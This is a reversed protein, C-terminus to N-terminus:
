RQTSLPVPCWAPCRASVAVRAHPVCSRGFTWVESTGDDGSGCTAAVEQGDPSVALDGIPSPVTLWSLGTRSETDYTLIGGDPRSVVASHRFASWLVSSWPDFALGLHEVTDHPTGAHSGTIRTQGSGALDTITIGGDPWALAVRDGRPSIAFARPLAAPGGRGEWLRYRVPVAGPKLATCWLDLQWREAGAREARGASAPEGVLVAAFEADPTVALRGRVEAPPQPLTALRVSEGARWLMVDSDRRFVLAAASPAWAPETANPIAFLDAKAAPTTVVIGEGDGVPRVVAMPCEALGEETMAELALDLGEAPLDGTVLVPFHGALRVEVSWTGSVMQAIRVDCPTQGKVYFRPDGPPSVHVMAGPPKTVVQFTLAPPPPAQPALFAILLTAVM